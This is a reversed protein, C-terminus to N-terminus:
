GAPQTRNVLWVGAFVLLVAPALWPSLPEGFLFIAFVLGTTTNAYSVQSLFM